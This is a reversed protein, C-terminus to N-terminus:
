GAAQCNREAALLSRAHDDYECRNEPQAAGIGCRHARRCALEAVAQVDRVRVDAQEDCHAREDARDCCQREANQGVAHAPGAHESPRDDEPARRHEPAGGRRAECLQEPRSEEEPRDRGRGARHDGREDAVPEPAPLAAPDIADDEGALVEARADAEGDGAVDGRERPSGREDDEGQRGEREGRDHPPQALGLTAPPAHKGRIM